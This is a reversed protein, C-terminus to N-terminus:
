IYQEGITSMRDCAVCDVSARDSGCAFGGKNTQFIKPKAALTPLDQM